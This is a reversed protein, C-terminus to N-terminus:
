FNSKKKDLEDFLEGLRVLKFGKDKLTVLWDKLAKVTESKPHGIVIVHGEKLAMKEAIQLQKMVYQYDNKNDLFVDREACAVGEQAAVHCGRTYESTKSDLFFLGKQKLIRMVADLKEENETFLSGMHNNIGRVRVGKFKGLMDEFLDQIEDDSMNIKLTDPALDAEVKPEMPTHIMVEHGAAVALQLFEQFNKGYVLFSSTIPAKIELIERTHKQNIGMDDIVVVIYKESTSFEAKEGKQHASPLVEEQYPKALSLNEEQVLGMQQAETEMEHLVEDIVKEDAYTAEEQSSVQNPVAESVQPVDEEMVVVAVSKESPMEKEDLFVRGLFILFFFGLLVVVGLVVKFLMSSKAEM